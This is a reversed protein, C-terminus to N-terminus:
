QVIVKHSSGEYKLFYFGAPIDSVDVKTINDYLKGSKVTTGSLNVLQYDKYAPSNELLEVYLYDKAPSPYLKINKAILHDAATDEEGDYLEFNEMEFMPWFMAIRRYTVWNKSKARQVDSSAAAGDTLFLLGEEKGTRDPLQEILSRTMDFGYPAGLYIYDELYFMQLNPMGNIEISTIYWNMFAFKDFDGYFSTGMDRKDNSSAFFLFEEGQDFQGNGNADFWANDNYDFLYLYILKDKYQEDLTIRIYNKDTPAPEGSPTDIGDFPDRKWIWIDYDGSLATVEWNKSKAIDIDEAYCENGDNFKQYINIEGPDEGNRNPLQEIFARMQERKMNNNICEVSSLAHSNSRIEEIKNNRVDLYWVNPSQAFDLFSLQNHNASIFTLRELHSLDLEDIQNDSCAVARLFTSSSLDLEKIGNEQCWLEGLQTLNSVDLEEIQNYACDLFYINPTGSLDLASLNCGRPSLSYLTNTTPLLLEDLDYCAYFRINELLENQRLDAKKVGCYEVIINKLLPNESVDLGILHEEDYLKLENVKGYINIKTHTPTFATAADISFRTVEEGVDYVGNNNADIWITNREEAPANVFVNMAEGVGNADIGLEIREGNTPAPEFDPEEGKEICELSVGYIYAAFDINLYNPIDTYYGSPCILIHTPVGTITVGLAEAIKRDPDAVVPVPNKGGDLYTEGSGVIEVMLFRMEDTGEPGYDRYLSQMTEDEFYRKSYGCMESLFSILVKKGDDLWSQIDHSNGYLDTAVYNGIIPIWEVQVAGPSQPAANYTKENKSSPNFSNEWPTINRKSQIVESRGIAAHNQAYVLTTFSFLLLFLAYSQRM